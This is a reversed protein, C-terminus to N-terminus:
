IRSGIGTLSRVEMEAQKYPDAKGKGVLTGVFGCVFSFPISVLGPNKLPFWHFDVAKIISDSAGSVVPSFVVLVVCAILGGYIGWLTGTTNFRKWFLSYLLTSLNASAAVAFALAVLFAINQGNALIGGIIALLGIVVATLRAVRVEDYPDAKGRKFINAYVDHAFSASATMTLGAIVALITAFAVAAVVGLLVTGGIHLALLPAASNEGGPASKIEKTGVLAAAGFGIILTCLYFVFVCATTWVVSRRAERANPVTYFRMLVHPLGATGLVLALALSVFDLKTLNNAGYSGGPQILKEGMPSNYAAQSLLNSISFGFKGFLFVTMLVVAMILISAKIIQVYTTGKMGGVLVYLVMILGVVAIILAQGFNSHINLLLAILGGAGAMQALMYFLSIVLTSTAAAARVPRVKMRFALVDGMTFRGTNRTLEAVLLLAVLWAVMFGISYLFGDYGHVAIAGAIGLFSAASLYDGSLAIGNQRGTFASGAAYYDAASSNRSSARYVVFLTVAVFAGFVVTNIIPNSGDTASAALVAPSTLHPM